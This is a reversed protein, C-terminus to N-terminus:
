QAKSNMAIVSMARVNRDAIMDKTTAQYKKFHETQRHADLAAANDCVKYLFVHNPNSALVTINFERCGPEKVANAGNEKIAELFKPMESPVVVLDVANIYFGGAEAAAHGSQLFMLSAGALLAVAAATALSPKLIAKRM